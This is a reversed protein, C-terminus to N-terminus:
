ALRGHDRQVTVNKNSARRAPDRRSQPLAAEADVARGHLGAPHRDVIWGQELM